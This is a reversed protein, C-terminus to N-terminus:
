EVLTNDIGTRLETVVINHMITTTLFHMRFPLLVQLFFSITTANHAISVIILLRPSRLLPLQLLPSSAITTMICHYHYRCTTSNVRTWYATYAHFTVYVICHFHEHQSCCKCHFRMPLLLCNTTPHPHGAPAQHYSPLPPHHSATPLLLPFQTSPQLHCTAPVTAPVPITASVCRM